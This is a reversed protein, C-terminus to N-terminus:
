ICVEIKIKSYLLDCNPLDEDVIAISTDNRWDIVLKIISAGEIVLKIISAGEIYLLCECVM